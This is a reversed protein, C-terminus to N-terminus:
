SHVSYQQRSAASKSVESRQDRVATRTNKGEHFGNL